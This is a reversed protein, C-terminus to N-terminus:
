TWDLKLTASIRVSSFIFKDIVETPKLNLLSVYSLLPPLSYKRDSGQGSKASRQCKRPFLYIIAVLSPPPSAPPPAQWGGGSVCYPFAPHKRQPGTYTGVGPSFSLSSTVRGVWYGREWVHSAGPCRLLKELDFGLPSAGTLPGGGWGKGSTWSTVGFHVVNEMEGLTEGLCVCVPIHWHMDLLSWM